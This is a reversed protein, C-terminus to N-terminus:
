PAVATFAIRYFRPRPALEGIISMVAAQVEQDQRFADFAAQSEWQQYNLIREGDTSLHLNASLFGPQRSVVDTVATRVAEAAAEQGVADIDFEVIVTCVDRGEGITVESM